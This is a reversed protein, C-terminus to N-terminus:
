HEFHIPITVAEQSQICDGKLCSVPYLRIDFNLINFNKLDLKFEPKNLIGPHLAVEKFDTSRITLKWLEKKQSVKWKLKLVNKNIEWKIREPLKSVSEAHTITQPMALQFGTAPQDKMKIQNSRDFIFNLTKTIKRCSFLLKIVEQLNAISVSILNARAVPIFTYKM